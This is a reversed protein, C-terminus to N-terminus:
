QVAEAFRLNLRGQETIHYRGSYVSREVMEKSHLWGIAAAVNLDRFDHRPYAAREIQRRTMWGEDDLVELVRRRTEQQAEPNAYRASM